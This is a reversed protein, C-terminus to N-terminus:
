KVRHAVSNLMHASDILQKSFGKAKITAPKLPVGVFDRIGTKIDAEMVQGIIELAKASDYNAKILAARVLRRWADAKKERVTDSFFPRQPVHAAASGWNHVAAVTAVLTGDPYTANEFFGAQVTRAGRLKRLMDALARQM